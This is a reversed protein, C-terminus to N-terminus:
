KKTEELFRNLEELIEKECPYISVAHGENTKFFYKKAKVVNYNNETMEIPILKDNIGHIFFCPINTKSLSNIAGNKELKFGAKIHSLVRIGPMFIFSLKNKRKLSYLVMEYSGTFGCDLVLNKVNNPMHSSAMSVIAAGMSVGWVLVEKPNYTKNLYDIWLLCDNSEKVGFTIYKGESKGHAREYVVLLNYGKELLYLGPTNVNNYPDAHYGHFFICTKDSNNNKYYMGYLKKNDSSKIFVEEYSLKMFKNMNNIVKDMFPKYHTNELDCDTLLKEEKLRKFLVNFIKNSIIFYITIFIILVGIIILAIILEKM